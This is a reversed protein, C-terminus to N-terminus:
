RIMKKLIKNTIVYLAAVLIALIVLVPALEEMPLVFILIWNIGLGFCLAIGASLVIRVLRCPVLSGFKAGDQRNNFFWALALCILIILVVAAFLKVMSGYSVLSIVDQVDYTAYDLWSVDFFKEYYGGGMFLSFLRNTTSHHAFWNELMGTKEPNMFISEYALAQYKLWVPAAMVGLGVLTALNGQLVVTHVLMYVAYAALMILWLLIVTRLTHQWTDNAMMIKYVPYILYNRIIRPYYYARLCFVGIGFLLCIVTIMSFGTVFKAIFREQQTYPLSLIYERKNRRHYDSFQVAAMYGLLIIAPYTTYQLAQLLTSGFAATSTGSFNRIGNTWAEPFVMEYLVSNISLLLLGTLLIGAVLFWKANGIEYRLLAMKRNM